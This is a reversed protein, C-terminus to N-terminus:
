GVEDEPVMPDNTLAPVWFRHAADRDLLLVRFGNNFKLVTRGTQARFNVVLGNGRKVTKVKSTDGSIVTASKAHSVLFEGDEGNFVWLALTPEEDFFAFSLVEATSYILNVDGFRFDTPLIKAYHGNLELKGGEQPVNLNGESTRIDMTFAVDTDSTPDTHRIAYFGADTDPNRLEITTIEDTSSYSTSNGVMDTKRLDKSVRIFLGLTKIEYFKTGITRNESIAASYDYSSTQFPAGLAGWNTGGYVMYLNLLTVRQAINDRYYLSVFRDDTKAPCGETPGYWPNTAGGQFEPMNSPQKPSVEKFHAVYDM